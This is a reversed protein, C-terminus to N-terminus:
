RSVYPNGVLYFRWPLDISKSIGIRKSIGITNRQVKESNLILIPGNILDLGYHDKNIGFAKCVKGPGNTLKFKEKDSIITKNFRRKAMTDIGFLPEVARILIASGHGQKGTVVNCCYHVGYSFYVYLYGGENFMIKNRETMGIYSHAAQDENQDYAEVEVIKGALIRKGEKKFLTKGILDRAVSLLSRTYFDRKLIDEKLIKSM